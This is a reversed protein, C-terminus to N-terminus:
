WLPYDSMWLVWSTLRRRHNELRYGGEGDAVYHKYRYPAFVVSVGGNLAGRFYAEPIAIQWRRKALAEATEEVRSFVIIGYFPKEYGDKRVRVRYAGRVVWERTYATLADGGKALYDAYFGWAGLKTPKFPEGPRGSWSGDVSSIVVDENALFAVSPTVKGIVPPPASACGCLAM